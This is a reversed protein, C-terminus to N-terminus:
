LMGFLWLPIRNGTGNEVDIALYSHPVGKIQVKM